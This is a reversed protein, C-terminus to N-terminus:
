QTLYEPHDPVVKGTAQHYLWGAQGTAEAPPFATTPAVTTLGSFPNMPMGGKLYPGYPFDRGGPGPYGAANTSQLLQPFTGKYLLPVEGGHELKYLEIQERFVQLNHRLTSASARDRLSEFVPIMAATAIAMGAILMMGDFLNFSDRWYRLRSFCYAVVILGAVVGLGTLFPGRGGIQGVLTLQV